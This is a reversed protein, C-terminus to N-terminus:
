SNLVLDFLLDLVSGECVMSATKKQSMKKMVAALSTHLYVVM